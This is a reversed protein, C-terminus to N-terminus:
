VTKNIANPSIHKQEESETVMTLSKDSNNNVEPQDRSVFGFGVFSSNDPTPIIQQSLACFELIIPFGKPMTVIQRTEQKKYTEM